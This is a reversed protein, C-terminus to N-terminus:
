RQFLPHRCTSSGSFCLVLSFPLDSYTAEHFLQYWEFTHSCNSEPFFLVGWIFIDPLYMTYVCLVRRFYLCYGNLFLHGCSRKRFLSVSYESLFQEWTIYLVFFFGKLFCSSRIM